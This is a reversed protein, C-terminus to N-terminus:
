AADYVETKILGVESLQILKGYISLCNFAEPESGDIRIRELIEATGKSM